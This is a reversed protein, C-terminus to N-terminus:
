TIHGGQLLEGGPKEVQQGLISSCHPLRCAIPRYRLLVCTSVLQSFNRLHGELIFLLIVHTFAKSGVRKVGFMELRRLCHLQGLGALFGDDTVASLQVALMLDELQTLKGILSFAADDMAGAAFAQRDIHLVRLAEFAAISDMHQLALEPTTIYLSHVQM